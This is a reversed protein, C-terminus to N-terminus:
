VTSNDIHQFVRRLGEEVSTYPLPVTFINEDVKQAIKDSDRKGALLSIEANNHEQVALAFDYIGTQESPQSM